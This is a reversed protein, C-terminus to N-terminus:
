AGGKQLAQRVGIRDIGPGDEFAEIPLTFLIEMLARPEFQVANRIGHIARARQAEILGLRAQRLIQQQSPLRQRAKIRSLISMAAGLGIADSTHCQVMVGLRELSRSAHQIEHGARQTTATARITILGSGADYLVVPRVPNGSRAGAIDAGGTAVFSPALQVHDADLVIM